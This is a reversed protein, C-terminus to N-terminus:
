SFPLKNTSGKGFDRTIDRGSGDTTARGSGDTTARGSPQGPFDPVSKETFHELGSNSLFINSQNLM